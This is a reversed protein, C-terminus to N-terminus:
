KTDEILNLEKLKKTRFSKDQRKCIIAPVLVFVAIIASFLFLEFPYVKDGIQYVGADIMAQTPAEGFINIVFPNIFSALVMPLAIVIVMRIGQFAGAKAEPTHDRSTAFFLGSCMMSGAMILTGGAIVMIMTLPLNGGVFKIFYCLLGGLVGIFVVPYYFKVKGYKDMLRGALVSLAASLVVILAIPIVYNKIGLTYEFLTIMYPQWIQLSLSSFMMAILCIYIMGHNKVSSPKFGYFVNHLYTNSKDPRLHPSDKFLFLGAVGILAIMIGQIAFFLGWEGKQTLGDFGVFIIMLAAIPMMSIIVDVLGRNSIDTVDTVWASFAADNSIAGFFTMVCDMIVFIVVIRMVYAPDIQHDGFFAFSATIFGWIIYGVSVFFKRNGLRDSLAGGFITAVAAVVASSAVAASTAWPDKTIVKQIYAAFYMNEIMWALQGALGFIIICIWIRAGLKNSKKLVVTDQM